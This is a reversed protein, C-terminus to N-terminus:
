NRIKEVIAKAGIEILKFTKNFDEITGYYPDPVDQNKHSATFDLYLKIKEKNLNFNQLQIIHNKDMGIILDFIKFDNETIKRAKINEINIYNKKATKIARNDPYEGIHYDFLGASDCFINKYKNIYCINKIVGEATPSRCINGTCILLLKM